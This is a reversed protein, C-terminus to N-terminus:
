GYATRKCKTVGRLWTVHKWVEWPYIYQCVELDHRPGSLVGTNLEYGGFCVLFVDYYTFAKRTVKGGVNVSPSISEGWLPAAISIKSTIQTTLLNDFLCDLQWHNSVYYRETSAMTIGLGLFHTLRCRLRQLSFIPLKVVKRESTPGYRTM